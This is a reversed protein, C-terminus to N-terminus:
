VMSAEFPLRAIKQDFQSTLVIVSSAMPGTARAAAQARNLSGGWATEQPM